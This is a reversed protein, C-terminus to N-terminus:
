NLAIGRRIYTPVDLDQGQFITPESKEFRGKSVIELPLQGQRMRSSPRKPRNVTVAGNSSPEFASEHPAAQMMVPRQGPRTAIPSGAPQDRVAADLAVPEVLAASPSSALMTVCIQGALQEDIAAGLIIHAHDCNRNIQEMIRNVEAMTLDKGGAISVLVSTAEALPRNTALLPHRLLKEVVDRTRTEGTAEATALSTESHQGRTVSCLDAFDVHIL